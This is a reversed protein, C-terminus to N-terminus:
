QVMRILDSWTSSKIEEVLKKNKSIKDVTRYFCKNSLSGKSDLQCQSLREVNPKDKTNLIAKFISMWYVKYLVDSEILEELKM